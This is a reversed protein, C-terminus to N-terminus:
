GAMEGGAGVGSAAGQVAADAPAQESLRGGAITFQRDAIARLSPRYTVLILITERKLKELLKILAADTRHDLGLSAEDFLIIDPKSVLESILLVGDHM